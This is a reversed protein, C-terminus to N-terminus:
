GIVPHVAVQEIVANFFRNIAVRQVSCLLNSQAKLTWLLESNEQLEDRFFGVDAVVARVASTRKYSKTFTPPSDESERGYKTIRKVQMSFTEETIKPPKKVFAIREKCCKLGGEVPPKKIEV